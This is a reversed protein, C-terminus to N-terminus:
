RRGREKGIEERKILEPQRREYAAIEAAHRQREYKRRREAKRTKRYRHALKSRWTPDCFVTM